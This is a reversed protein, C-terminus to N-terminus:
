PRAIDGGMGLKEAPVQTVTLQGVNINYKAAVSTIIASAEDVGFYENIYRIYQIAEKIEASTCNEPQGDKDTVKQFNGVFTEGGSKCMLKILENILVQEM